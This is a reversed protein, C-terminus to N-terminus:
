REAHRNAALWLGAALFLATELLSIQLTEADPAASMAVAPQMMAAFPFWTPASIQAASLALGCLFGAVGIGLPVWIAECRSAVLLMFSLVPMSVAFSYLFFRLLVRFSFSGRPLETMGIQALALNQVLSAAFLLVSLILFKCLYIEWIRVPLLYMKRIAGGEFEMHYIMCSAAVIGFLNLVMMMGYLQTLLIDMPALPLRLLTDRRVAFNLFAYIAGLLGVALLAPAVGTRREKKLELILSNM